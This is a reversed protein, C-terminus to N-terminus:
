RGMGHFEKCCIKKQAEWSARCGATNLIAVQGNWQSEWVEEPILGQQFELFITEIVRLQQCIMM